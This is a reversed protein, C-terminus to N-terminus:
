CPTTGFGGDPGTRWRLSPGPAGVQRQQGQTALTFHAAHTSAASLRQPSATEAKVQLGPWTRRAERVKGSTCDGQV